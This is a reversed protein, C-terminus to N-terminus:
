RRTSHHCSAHQDHVVFLAHPVGHALDELVLPDLHARRLGPVLCQLDIRLKMRVQYEEVHLHGAEVAERRERLDTFLVRRRLHDHDGAVPGDLRRHLRCLQPGVVEELLREVGVANQEGQPMRQLPSVQFRFVHPEARRHGIAVLDDAFAGRDALQHLHDIAYRRSAGTDQDAAGVTAPLLQHCPGNM